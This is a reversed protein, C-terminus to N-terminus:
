RRADVLDYLALILAEVIGRERKPLRTLRWNLDQLQNSSAEQMEDPQKDGFIARYFAPYKEILYVQALARPDVNIIEAIRPLMEPDCSRRGAELMDIFSLTVALREALETGTLGLETRRTRVANGFVTKTPKVGKIYCM